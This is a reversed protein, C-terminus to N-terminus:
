LGSPQQGCCNFVLNPNAASGVGSPYESNDSGRQIDSYLPLSGLSVENGVWVEPRAGLLWATPNESLSQNALEM